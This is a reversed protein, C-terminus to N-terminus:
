WNYCTFYEGNNDIHPTICTLVSDSRTCPQLLSFTICCHIKNYIISNLYGCSSNQQQKNNDWPNTNEFFYDWRSREGKSNKLGKIGQEMRIM